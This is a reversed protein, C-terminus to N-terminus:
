IWHYTFSALTLADSPVNADDARDPSPGVGRLFCQHHPRHCSSSALSGLNSAPEVDTASIFARRGDDWKVNM